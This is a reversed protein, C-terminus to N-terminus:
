PPSSIDNVFMILLLSTTSLINNRMYNTFPTYNITKDYVFAVWIARFDMRDRIGSNDDYM